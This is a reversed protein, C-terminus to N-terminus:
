GSVMPAAHKIVDIIPKDSKLNQRGWMTCNGIMLEGFNKKDNLLEQMKISAENWQNNLGQVLKLKKYKKKVEIIKKFDKMECAISKVCFTHLNNELSEIILKPHSESTAYIFCVEASFKKMAESISKFVRKEFDKPLNKLKKLNDITNSINIDVFAVVEFMNNDLNLQIRQLSFNGLGVHICKYKKTM